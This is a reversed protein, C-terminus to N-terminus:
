EFSSNRSREEANERARAAEIRSQLEAKVVEIETRSEDPYMTALQDLLPIRKELYNHLSGSWSRPYLRSAFIKFIVSKDPAVSLLAVATDSLKLPAKEGNEKELFKCVSAAVPFRFKPDENCWDIFIEAPVLECVTESRESYPFTLLKVVQEYSGQESPVCVNQLALQPFYEFIRKLASKRLEGYRRGVDDTSLLLKLIPEVQVESKASDLAFKLIVDIDHDIDSHDVDLLSWDIKCLFELLAEGLESKYQNNKKDTCHIVM